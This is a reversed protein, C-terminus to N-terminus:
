SVSSDKLWSKALGGLGFARRSRKRIVGVETSHARNGYESRFAMETFIVSSDTLNLARISCIRMYDISENSPRVKSITIVFGHHIQYLILFPPIDPGGALRSSVFRLEPKL